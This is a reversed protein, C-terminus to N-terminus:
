LAGTEDKGAGKARKGWGKVSWTKSVIKNGLESKENTEYLEGKFDLNMEVREGKDVPISPKDSGEFISGEEGKDTYKNFSSRALNKYRHGYPEYGKSNGDENWKDKDLMADKSLQHPNIKNGAKFYGKIYQRYEGTIYGVDKDVQDPNFKAIMNFSSGFHKSNNYFSPAVNGDPIVTFEAGIKDGKKVRQIRNQNIQKAPKIEKGSEERRMTKTLLWSLAQNGITRQLQQIDHPTLSRPDLSARQILAAPHVQRRAPSGANTPAPKLLQQKSSEKDHNHARHKSPM